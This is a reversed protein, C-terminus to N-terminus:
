FWGGSNTPLTLWQALTYPTGGGDNWALPVWRGTFLQCPVGGYLRGGQWRYFYYPAFPFFTAQANSLHNEFWGAAIRGMVYRSVM